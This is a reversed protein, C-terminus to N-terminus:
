AARQRVLMACFYADLGDRFPLTQLMRRDTLLAPGRAITPGPDAAALSFGADSALFADVVNENEEPESSCTAYVLTGGPRLAAAAATLMARQTAAFGALDRATRSWKVDPDRRVIGLGSCPADVLIRDFVPGFPLPRSADMQVIPCRVGARALTAALLRIRGPRHDATVIQGRGEMTQSMIVTKGGPAACADLVREGPSASAALAVIQSAEDQITLQARLGPPVRHWDGAALRLAGRVWSPRTADIGAEKLATFTAGTEAPPLVRVVIDPAANNFECWRVAAEFGHRDLWRAALWEPHSLSTTLYALQEARSSGTGPTKPLNLNKRRVLTRLVANVFGTARSQGLERALEVSEHVAAHTPIRDLHRVQYAGLRLTTRVAPNLDTIRRRSCAALVADLENRWRLTGATLELVLGRDREDSTLRRAHELEASLTTRGRELALLVRAAALRASTM